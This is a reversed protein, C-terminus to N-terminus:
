STTVWCASALRAERGGGPGEAVFDVAGRPRTGGVRRVTGRFDHGGLRLTYRDGSIALSTGGVEEATRKRGDEALWVAQWTGEFKQWADM